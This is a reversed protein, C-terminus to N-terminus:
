KLLLQNLKQLYEPSVRKQAHEYLNILFYYNSNRHQMPIDLLIEKARTLSGNKFLLISKEITFKSFIDWRKLKHSLNLINEIIKDRKSTSYTYLHITLELARSYDKFYKDLQIVYENIIQSKGGHRKLEEYFYERSDSLRSTYSFTQILFLTMLITIILNAKVQSYRKVVFSFFIVLLFALAPYFWHDAVYSYQMYPIYFLGCVPLYLFFCLALYPVLAKPLFVSLSLLILAGTMSLYTNFDTLDLDPYVIRNITLGLSGKLYFGLSSLIVSTKLLLPDVNFISKAYAKVTNIYKNYDVKPVYITKVKNLNPNSITVKNKELFDKKKKFYDEHFREIHVLESNASSVGKMSEIGLLGSILFFPLLLLVKKSINLNTLIFFLAFPTLIVTSKSLLSLTFFIFGLAYSKMKHDLNFKQLHDLCLFFFSLSLLTKFQFIWYINEVAIPHFLFLLYVFKSINPYKDKLLKHLLYSNFFHLALNTIRYFLFHEGYLKYLVWLLSFSLPWSKFEESGYVWFVFPHSANTVFVNKFIYVFDDGFPHSIFVPSYILLALLATIPFFLKHDILKSGLININNM